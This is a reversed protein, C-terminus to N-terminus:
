CLTFVFHSDTVLIHYVRKSPLCTMWLLGFDVRSVIHEECTWVVSFDMCISVNALLRFVFCKQQQQQQKPPPLTALLFNSQVLIRMAIAAKRM